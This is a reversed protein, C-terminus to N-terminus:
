VGLFCFGAIWKFESAFIRGFYREVGNTSHVRAGIFGDSQVVVKEGSVNYGAHAHRERDVVM